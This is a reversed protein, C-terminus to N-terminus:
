KVGDGTQLLVNEKRKKGKREKEKRKREKEKGKGKREKEKRGKGEKRERGEKGKREKISDRETAGAPTCHHLRPKICGRGGPNM